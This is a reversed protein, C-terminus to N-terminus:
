RGSSREWSLTALAGSRSSVATTVTCGTEVTLPRFLETDIPCIAPPPLQLGTRWSFRCLWLLRPSAVQRRIENHSASLLAIGLYSSLHIESGQM